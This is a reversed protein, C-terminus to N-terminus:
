TLFLSILNKSQLSLSCMKLNVIRKITSDNLFILNIWIVIHQADLGLLWFDKDLSSYEIIFTHTTTFITGQNGFSNLTIVVPKAFALVM